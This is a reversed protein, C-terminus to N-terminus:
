LSSHSCCFALPCMMTRNARRHGQEFVDSDNSHTLQFEGTSPRVLFPSFDPPLILHLIASPRGFLRAAAASAVVSLSVALSISLCQMLTTSLFLPWPLDFLALDRWSASPAPPWPWTGAWPSDISHASSFLHQQAQATSVTSLQFATTKGTRQIIM